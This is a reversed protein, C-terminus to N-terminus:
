AKQYHVPRHHPGHCLHIPYCVPWGGNSLTDHHNTRTNIGMMAGAVCPQGQMQCQMLTMTMMKLPKMVVVDHDLPIVPKTITPHNGHTLLIIIIIIITIVIIAVIIIMISFIIIAISIGGPM